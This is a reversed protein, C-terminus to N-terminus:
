PCAYCQGGTAGAARTLEREEGYNETDGRRTLKGVCM